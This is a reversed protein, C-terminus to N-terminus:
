LILLLMRMKKLKQRNEILKKTSIESLTSDLQGSGCAMNFERLQQFLVNDHANNYATKSIALDMSTDPNKIYEICVAILYSVSHVISLTILNYVMIPLQVKLAFAKMFLAKRQKVNEIANIVTDIIESSEKYELVLKKIIQVCETLNDYGDIKTIDGKSKPITGFDIDDVKEIIKDYLAGALATVVTSKEDETLSVIFQRTEKDKYDFNEKLIMDIPDIYSM